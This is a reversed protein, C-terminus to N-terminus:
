FTTQPAKLDILCDVKVNEYIGATEFDNHTNM